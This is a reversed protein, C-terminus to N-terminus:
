IDMPQAKLIRDAARLQRLQPLSYQAAKAFSPLVPFIFHLIKAALPQSKIMRPPPRNVRIIFDVQAVDAL